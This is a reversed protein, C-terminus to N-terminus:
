PWWRGVDQIARRTEAISDEGGLAAVFPSLDQLEVLLNKRPRSACAHLTDQWLAMAAHPHEKLRKVLSPVLEQLVRSRKEVDGIQLAAALAERLHGTACLDLALDTLLKGRFEIDKVQRALTLSEQLLEPRFATMGLLAEARVDVDGIGRAAALAKELLEMPLHPLLRVLAEARDYVDEIERVAALAKSLATGQLKKTLHPALEALVTAREHPDGIERVAALAEQSAQERLEPPLHPMLRQLGRVRRSSQGIRSAARAAVGLLGEPLHHILGSRPLDQDHADEAEPGTPETYLQEPPPVALVALAKAREDADGIEYVAALAEQLALEQLEEPLQPALWLFRRARRDSDGIARAAALAERSAEEQLEEPLQLALRLFAQARNNADRIARAAVLAERFAQEQLGEPLQPALRLQAEARDGADRIARAAVLAGRLAQEQLEEPLHPALQEFVVARDDPDAIEQTAALAEGPVQKRLVEPLQPVLLTLIEARQPEIDIRRAAAVAEWLVEERQQEPLYPLLAILAKIRNWAGETGLVEGLTRELFAEPLHPAVGALAKAWGPWWGIRRPPGLARVLREAHPEERQYYAVKKLEQVAELAKDPHGVEALRPALRALVEFRWSDSKIKRAGALVEELARDQLEEPLQAALEVLSPFLDMLERDERPYKGVGRAAAVAEGLAKLRPEEPLHPALKALVEARQPDREIERAATLAEGLARGQLKAPIQPALKILARARGLSSEIERAAALAEVMAREQLEEPLRPALQEFVVTRSDANVIERAAALADELAPEQLVEPLRPALEMLARARGLSSEVERVAGLAQEMAREQLEEPLHPALCVLAGARGGPSEIERATVLAEQLLWEPLHPALRALVRIRRRDGESRRSAALTGDVVSEGEAPDDSCEPKPVPGLLSWTLADAEGELVWGRWIRQLLLELRTKEREIALASALVSALAEELLGKPLHPSLEVLAWARHEVNVFQRATNLGQLPTWMGREVLALLLPVPIEGALSRLSSEILAYRVQRGVVGPDVKGTEDAQTWALALDSLYGVYGGEADHRAEAWAQHEDGTAVLQNLDQSRGSQELHWALHAYIYGDDPLTHWLRNRARERYRELLAGHAEALRLGLGEPRGRTLLRGALDHLHDHLRYSPYAEGGLLVPPGPLLLAQKRLVELLETAKAEGVGWLTAAMPPAVVADEALVGSWAFSRWAEEDEHYLADLSLNLCAALALRARPCGTDKVAQLRDIEGELDERLTSWSRGRRARNAAQELAMPVYDVAEALRLAENPETGTLSRELRRSLLHLSQEPTIGEVQHLAIGAGDVLDARRTTILTRCRPGGVQFHRVHDPDWVDDVVLLASKDQLLTCLHASLAQVAMAQLGYDGLAEVWGGLLPILRPQQGLTAWLIGDAFHEQVAADHALDAALVSKGLGGIGHISIVLPAEPDVDEDTLLRTKLIDSM